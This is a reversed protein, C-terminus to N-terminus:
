RLDDDERQRRPSKPREIPPLLPVDGDGDIQGRHRPRASVIVTLASSVIFVILVLAVWPLVINALGLVAEIACTVLPPVIILVLLFELLAELTIGGM